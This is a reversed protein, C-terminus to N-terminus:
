MMGLSAMLYDFYGRDDDYAMKRLLDEPAAPAIVGLLPKQDMYKNYRSAYDAMKGVMPHVPAEISGTEAPRAEANNAGLAAGGLLTAGGLSALLNASDKKDPDFAANISRINSPDFIAQVVSEQPAANDAYNMARIQAEEPIKPNGLLFPYDYGAERLYKEAAQYHSSSGNDIVGSMRVGDYGAERAARAIDDTSASEGALFGFVDFASDDTGDPYRIVADYYGIDQWNKGGLDVDLINGRTVVPYVAGGKGGMKATYTNAVEPNYSFFSGAKDTKGRGGNFSEIDANAGHYMVNDTDFGMQKARQMRAAHSMDLKKALRKVAKSKIGM